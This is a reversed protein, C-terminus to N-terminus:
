LDRLGLVGRLYVDDIYMYSQRKDLNKTKDPIGALLLIKLDNEIYLSTSRCKIIFLKLFLSVNQIGLIFPNNTVKQKDM